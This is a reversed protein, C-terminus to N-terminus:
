REPRLAGCRAAARTTGVRAPGCPVGLEKALENAVAILQSAGDAGLEDREVREFAALAQSRDEDRLVAEAMPFLVGDEKAIHDRLLEVYELAAAVFSAASERNTEADRLSARMKAIEGRGIEHENLMVAIPGVNRPVGRSAMLPFLHLEEKGHHLRDAFEVLFQVARNAAHTAVKGSARAEFALTELCDLVQEIVRHEGSLIETPQM